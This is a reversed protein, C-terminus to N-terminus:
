AGNLMGEKGWASLEIHLHLEDLRVTALRAKPISGLQSHATYQILRCRAIRWNPPHRPDLVDEGYSSADRLYLCCTGGFCRYRGALNCPTLDLFISFSVVIFRQTAYLSLFKNGSNGPRDNALGAGTDPCLPASSGAGACWPVPHGSANQKIWKRTRWKAAGDTVLSGLYPWSTPHIPFSRFPLPRPKISTRGRCKGPHVSSFQSDRLWTLWANGPYRVALSVRETIKIIYMARPRQVRYCILLLLISNL